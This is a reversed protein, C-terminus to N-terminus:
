EWLAEGMRDAAERALRPRVHQYVEQTFGPSAHGLMEQVVVVDVGAELLTTATAHRADHVRYEPIGLEALLAKWEGWDRRSDVPRGSPQTFVLSDKKAPRRCAPCVVERPRPRRPCTKGDHGWGEGAANAVRDAEQWTRHEALWEALPRPLPITRKSKASKPETLVLGGGTREPCSAAHRACDPECWRPCKGEDHAKCRPPCPRVCVHRRGATRAAKPCDFPNPPCPYRHRRKGCAHADECGHQWPLRVLEYAVRVTARDLDTLDVCPWTLGLAEGQRVGVALALGWRAGNWRGRVAKLTRTAEEREPPLPEAREATPPRTFQCPNRPILKRQVAVKLARSLIAHIQVITSPALGKRKLKAYLEDLQTEDLDKLWGGLEAILHMETKARYSKHWTSERVQNKIVKHLWHHLWGATTWGKGKQPTFGAERDAIFKRRKEIVADPTAGYFYRRDAQGNPKYGLHLEAVWRGDSGRQYVSGEGQQRRNQKAM